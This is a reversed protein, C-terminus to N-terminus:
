RRKKAFVLMGVATLVVMSYVVPLFDKAYFSTMTVFALVDFILFYVAFTLFRELDLKAEKLPVQEGCSYQANKDASQSSKPALRGGVRYIVIAAVLSVGFILPLIYPVGSIL